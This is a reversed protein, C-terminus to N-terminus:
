EHNIGGNLEKILFFGENSITIAPVLPETIFDESHIKNLSSCNFLNIAFENGPHSTIIEQGVSLYSSGFAFSVNNFM